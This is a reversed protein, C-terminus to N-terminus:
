ALPLVEYFAKLKFSTWVHSRILYILSFWDQGCLIQGTKSNLINDSCQMKVFIDNYICYKMLFEYTKFVVYLVLSLIYSGYLLNKALNQNISIVRSM